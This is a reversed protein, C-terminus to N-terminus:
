FEEWNLQIRKQTAKWTGRHSISNPVQPAYVDVGSQLSLCIPKVLFGRGRLLVMLLERPIHFTLSVM